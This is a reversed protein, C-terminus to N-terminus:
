PFPPQAWVHASIAHKWYNGPCKNWFYRQSLFNGTMNMLWQLASCIWYPGILDRWLDMLSRIIPNDKYLHCIEQMVNAEFKKGQDSDPVGFRFIFESVLVKAISLAVM